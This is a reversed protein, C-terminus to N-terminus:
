AQLPPYQEARAMVSLMMGRQRSYQNTLHEIVTAYIEACNEAKEDRLIPGWKVVALKGSRLPLNQVM